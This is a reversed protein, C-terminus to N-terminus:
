NGLKQEIKELRQTQLQTQVAQRSIVDYILSDKVRRVSDNYQETKLRLIRTRKAHNSNATDAVFRAHQEVPSLSQEVHIEHRARQEPSKFTKSDITAIWVAAVGIAALIFTILFWYKKIEEM